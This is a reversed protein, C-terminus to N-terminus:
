HRLRDPMMDFSVQPDPQQDWPISHDVEEPEEDPPFSTIEPMETLCYGNELEAYAIVSIPYLVEGVIKTGLIAVAEEISTAVVIGLQNFHGNKEKKELIFFM